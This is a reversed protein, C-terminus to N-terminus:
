FEDEWGDANDYTVVSSDYETSSDYLYNINGSWSTNQVVIDTWITDTRNIARLSNAFGFAFSIYAFSQVINSATNAVTDAPVFGNTDVLEYYVAEIDDIDESSPYIGGDLHSLTQVGVLNTAYAEEVNNRSGGRIDMDLNDFDIRSEVANFLIKSMSKFREDELLLGLLYAVPAQVRVYGYDFGRRVTAGADHASPTSGDYGRTCSWTQGSTNANLQILEGDIEVSMNTLSTISLAATGGTALTLSTDDADVPSALTTTKADEELYAKVSTIDDVIFSIDFDGAIKHARVPSEAYANASNQAYTYWKEDGLIEYLLLFTVAYLLNANGTNYYSLSTFGQTEAYTGLALLMARWNTLQQETAYPELVRYALGVMVGDFATSTTTPTGPQLYNSGSIYNSQEFAGVGVSGIRSRNVATRDGLQNRLRYTEMLAIAKDIYDQDNNLAGYSALTPVIMLVSDRHNTELASKSAVIKVHSLNVEGSVVEIVVKHDETYDLGTTSFIEQTVRWRADDFSVYVGGSSNSQVKIRVKYIANWNPSGQRIFESKRITCLNWGNVFGSWNAYYFNTFASPTASTGDLLFQAYHINNANSVYVWVMFYDDDSLSSYNQTSSLVLASDANSSASALTLRRSSTGVKVNTTDNTSDSDWGEGAEMTAVATDTPSATWDYTGDLVDDVYIKASGYTSDTLGYLTVEEGVVQIEITDGATSSRYISPAQRNEDKPVAAFSADPILRYNDRYIGSDYTSPRDYYTLKNTDGARWDAQYTSGNWYPEFLEVLKEISSIGYQKTSVSM